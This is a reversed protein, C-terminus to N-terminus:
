PTLGGDVGVVQGTIFAAAPSLLFAVAGAVDDPTGLRGLPTAAITAERADGDLTALMDTRIYGPAVANVRIGAPGLEKAAALALGIVAGKTASYVAQGRGGARGMVSSVLVVAPFTGRRLLRLSAQLTHTAGMANVEFLRNITDHRMMGLPGAAHIGANIVLADLRGHRQYIQRMMASVLSPDAVDGHVPHAPGGTQAAVEAAAKSAREEDRGHVEVAYGTAALWMAIARGIGATSGTVLAVRPESSSSLPPPTTTTPESSIAARPAPPVAAGPESPPPASAM